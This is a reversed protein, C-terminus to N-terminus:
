FAVGHKWLESVQKFVRNEPIGISERLIDKNKGAKFRPIESILRGLAEAGFLDEREELARVLFLSQQYLEAVEGGVFQSYPESLEERSRFSSRNIAVLAEKRCPRPCEFRQALGEELWGPRKASRSSEALLAHILEHRLVRQLQEQKRPEASSAGVPLRIRGDFVAGAWIPAGPLSTSFDTSSEYFIVEVIHRLPLFAHQNVFEDHADELTSLAFDALEEQDGSRYRLSFHDTSIISQAPAKAAAARLEQRKRKVWDSNKPSSNAYKEIVALGDVYRGMSELNDVYLVAMQFDDPKEEFVKEFAFAALEHRGLKRACYGLGRLSDNTLYSEPLSSFLSLAEECQGKKIKDWAAADVLTPLQSRLWKGLKAELKKRGLVELALSYAKSFDGKKFAEAVASVEPFSRFAQSLDAKLVPLSDKADIKKNHLDDALVKLESHRATLDVPFSIKQKKEGLLGFCVVLAVGM